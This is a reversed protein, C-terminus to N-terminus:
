KVAVSMLFFSYLAVWLIEAVGGAFGALLITNRLSRPKNDFTHLNM